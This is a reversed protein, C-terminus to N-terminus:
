LPATYGSCLRHRLGRLYTWLRAPALCLLLHPLAPRPHEPVPAGQLKGSLLEGAEAERGAGRAETLVAAEPVVVPGQPLM